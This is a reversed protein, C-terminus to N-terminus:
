SCCLFWCFLFCYLCSLYLCMEVLDEICVVNKFVFLHSFGNFKICILKVCALGYLYVCEICINLVLEYFCEFLENSKYKNM